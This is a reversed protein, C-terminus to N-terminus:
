DRGRDEGTGVLDNFSVAARGEGSMAYAVVRSVSGQDARDADNHRTLLKWRAPVGAAGDHRMCAVVLHVFQLALDAPWLQDLSM